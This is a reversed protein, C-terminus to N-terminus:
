VEALELATVYLEDGSLVEVDASGCSRCAFVVSGGLSSEGGCAGCRLRAAVPEIELASGDLGTDATVMSWCFVLTDPVVQRLQGVQVHVVAIGRGGSRRVAIDAIAGCLSLEHM